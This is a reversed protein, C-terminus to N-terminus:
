LSSSSIKSQPKPKCFCYKKVESSTVCSSQNGYLDLRSIEGLLNWQRMNGHVTVEFVGNSPAAIITLMFVDTSNSENYFKHTAQQIGHLKLVECAHNYQPILLANIFGIVFDAASRVISTNFSKTEFKEFNCICWHEEIGAMACTRHQPIKSFLSMGRSIKDHVVSNMDLLNKLTEHIDYPTTLKKANTQLNKMHTPYSTAFWLPFFFYAFPMREEIKGQDTKRIDGWRMGHDSLIILATRNLQNQHFMQKLTVSFSEDGLRPNNLLDHFLSNGWIFQFYPRNQRTFLDATQKVYDLLIDFALKPGYCLFCNQSKTHGIKEAMELMFPHLYYDTPPHNFGKKDYHFAGMWVADEAM